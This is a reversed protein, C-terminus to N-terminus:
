VRTIERRYITMDDNITPTQQHQQKLYSGLIECHGGCRVVGVGGEWGLQLLGVVGLGLQFGSGVGEDQCDM